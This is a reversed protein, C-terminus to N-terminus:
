GTATGMVNHNVQRGLVASHLAEFLEPYGVTDSIVMLDIDSGAVDSGKAVSGYVFAARIEGARPALAQRLPEVVGVTKVILGHLEGFVPCDRNARYHKQNGIRTVTVLGAGALRTLM